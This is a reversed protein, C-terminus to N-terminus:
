NEMDAYKWTHKKYSKRGYGGQFQVARQLFGPKCGFFKAGETITDFRITKGNKMTGIIARKNGPVKFHPIYEPRAWDSEQKSFYEDPFAWGFGKVSQYASKHKCCLLYGGNSGGFVRKIEMSSPWEKIFKGTFIDYQIIKKCKKPHNTLAKSIKNRTEDKMVNGTLNAANINYGFDPNRTNFKEIYIDELNQKYEKTGFSKEVIDFVFSTKGYKKWARQLHENSHIGSNLQWRHTKWRGSTGVTSGIYKKGSVINSISYIYFITEAM